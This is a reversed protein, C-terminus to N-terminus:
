QALTGTAAPLAAPTTNLIYVVANIYSIVSSRDSPKGADKLGQAIVPEMLQLVDALKQAGSGSQNGLAAAKQEALTVAAVTANYMPSLEPAFLAVAARGASAAWPLLFELGSKFDHGVHELFSKFSM